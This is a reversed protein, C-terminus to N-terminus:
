AAKRQVGGRRCARIFAHPGRLPAHLGGDPQRDRYDRVNQAFALARGRDPEACDQDREGDGNRRGRKASAAFGQDEAGHDAEDLEGVLQGEDPELGIDSRESVAVEGKGKLSGSLRAREHVVDKQREVSPQRARKESQALQQPPRRVRAASAPPKRERMRAGATSVPAQRATNKMALRARLSTADSHGATQTKPATKRTSLAHAAPM